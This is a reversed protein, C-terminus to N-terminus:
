AAEKAVADHLLRTAEALLQERSGSALTRQGLFAEFEQPLEGISDTSLGVKEQRLIEPQLEFHMAGATLDKVKRFDLASYVHAPLAHVRLRAIAGELRRAGLAALLAPAMDAEQMGDCRVAPLDIMERAPLEIPRVTGRALDVLNVSKTEGCERFTCRETSGAYWVRPAVETARHYHGLAVYDMGAPLENQPVVQEHFEGTRFDGVGMVGAHLTAVNYRAAADPQVRALEQSLAESSAAHPVAHIACDGIAVKEYRGKYVAHVGPMFDLLRLVAGTERLRPAEHNGSLVVLPIRADALRRCEALVHGIARNTPRVSDFLDGSHLAVDVRLDIAAQVARSFSDFFDQERQNLGEPTVRAYNAFGVHTDSMHLLRM